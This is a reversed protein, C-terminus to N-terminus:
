RIPLSDVFGAVLFLINLADLSDVEEDENVDANEACPLSSLLGASLQLVLTADISDVANSCNVDGLLPPPASTPV